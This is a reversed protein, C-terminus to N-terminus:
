NKRALVVLFWPKFRLRKYDRRHTTRMSEAAQPELFRKLTFGAVTLSDLIDTLSRHYYTVTGTSWTDEIRTPAFYDSLKFRHFVMCPHHTSFLLTGGPKLVRNFERLTPLWDPLYHLVLPAAVLDFEADAAFTLPLALDATLVRARDGVRKRTAATMKQSADVCTVNAAGNELYHAAYWGSGCGADLVSLGALPPMCSVMAPREYMANHTSTDVHAIYAEAMADYETGTSNSESLHYPPPTM